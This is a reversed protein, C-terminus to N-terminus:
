RRRLLLLAGAAILVLPWLRRLVAIWADPMWQIALFVCGAAILAKGVTEDESWRRLRETM